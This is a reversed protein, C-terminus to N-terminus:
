NVNYKIEFITSSSGDLNKCKVALIQSKSKKMADAHNGSINFELQGLSLNMNDSYTTPIEVNNGNVDEYVLVYSGMDSLSLLENGNKTNSSINFLIRDGFKKINQTFNNSNIDDININSANYFIKIYKNKIVGQRNELNIENNVVKNYVKYTSINKDYKRINDIYRKINYTTLAGKRVIQTGDYNNILKATYEFVIYGGDFNSSVYDYNDIIPMYKFMEQFNNDNFSQQITYIQQPLISKGDKYFNTVIEHSIIWKNYTSAIEEALSANYLYDLADENLQTNSYM